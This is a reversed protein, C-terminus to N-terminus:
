AETQHRLVLELGSLAGVIKGEQFASMGVQRVRRNIGHHQGAQHLRQGEVPFNGGSDNERAILRLHQDRKEVLRQVERRDEQGKMQGSPKEVPRHGPDRGQDEGTRVQEPSEADGAKGCEQQHDNEEAQDPTQHQHLLRRLFRLPAARPKEQHGPQAPRQGSRAGQRPIGKTPQNHGRQHKERSM